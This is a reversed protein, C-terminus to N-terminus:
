SRVPEEFRGHSPMPLGAKNATAYSPVHPGRACINLYLRGERALPGGGFHGQTPHPTLSEEEKYSQGESGERGDTGVREGNIPYTM